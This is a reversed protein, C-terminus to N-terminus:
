DPRIEPINIAEGYKDGASKNQLLFRCIFVYILFVVVSLYDFWLVAVRSLYLFVFGCEHDHVFVSDCFHYVIFLFFYSLCM